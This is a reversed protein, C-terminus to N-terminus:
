DLNLGLAYKKCKAIFKHKQWNSNKYVPIKKTYNKMHTDNKMQTYKKENPYM